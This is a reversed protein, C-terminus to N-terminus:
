MLPGQRSVILGLQHGSRMGAHCHVYAPLLTTVPPNLVTTHQSSQPYLQVKM